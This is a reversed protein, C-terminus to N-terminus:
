SVGIGGQGPRAGPRKMALAVLGVVWLAAACMLGMYSTGMAVTQADILDGQRRNAGAVAIARFAAQFGIVTGCLGLVFPLLSLVLFWIVPRRGPVILFLAIGGVLLIASLVIISWGMMGSYKLAAEVVPGPLQETMAEKVTEALHRNSCMSAQCAM